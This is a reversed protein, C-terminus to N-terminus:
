PTQRQREINRALAAAGDFWRLPAYGEVSGGLIVRGHHELWAHAELGSEGKMAGVVLEVEVGKKRLLRYCVLAKKLCTPKLVHYRSAVEVLYAVHEPSVPSEGLADGDVSGGRQLFIMLTKFSLLKVALEVALFLGSAQLLLCWDAWPLTWAKRLRRTLRRRHRLHLSM